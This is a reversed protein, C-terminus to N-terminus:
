DKYLKQMNTNKNIAITIKKYTDLLKKIPRKKLFIFMVLLECSHVIKPVIVKNIKIKIM